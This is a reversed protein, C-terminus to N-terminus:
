LGDQEEEEETNEVDIIMAQEELAAIKEQLEKVPGTGIAELVEEFQTEKIKRVSDDPCLSKKPPRNDKSVFVDEIHAHLYEWVALQDRLGALTEQLRKYTMIRPVSM